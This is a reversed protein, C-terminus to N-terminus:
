VHARGIKVKPFLQRKADSLKTQADLIDEAIYLSLHRHQKVGNILDLAEDCQEDMRDLLVKLEIEEATM